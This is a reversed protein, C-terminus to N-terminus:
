EPKHPQKNYFGDILIYIAMCLGVIQEWLEPAIQFALFGAVANAVRLTSPQRLWQWFWDM